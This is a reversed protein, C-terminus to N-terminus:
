SLEGLEIAVIGKAEGTNKDVQFFNLFMTGHPDAPFDAVFMEGGYKQKQATRPHRFDLLVPDLAGPDVGAAEWCGDFDGPIEKTAVLSGDIYARRCGAVKLAELAARLGTLLRRRWATLGFAAELEM